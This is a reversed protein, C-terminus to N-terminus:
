ENRSTWVWYFQLHFQWIYIMSIININIKGLYFKGRRGSSLKNRQKVLNMRLSRKVSGSIRLYCPGDIVWKWRLTTSSNTGALDCLVSYLLFCGWWWDRSSEPELFLLLVHCATLVSYLVSLWVSCTFLNWSTKSM